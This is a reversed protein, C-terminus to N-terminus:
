VPRFPGVLCDGTALRGCDLVGFVVGASMLQVRNRSYFVEQAAPYKRRIYEVVGRETKFKKKDILFM